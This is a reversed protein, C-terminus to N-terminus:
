HYPTWRSSCTSVCEQGVRREESRLVPTAGQLLRALLVNWMMWGTTSYFLPRSSADLGVHFATLKCHELLIGVHSHVVAKPLGTTGSSFLVWLPHDHAVREFKFQAAPVDAGDLM